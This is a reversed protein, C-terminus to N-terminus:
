TKLGFSGIRTKSKLKTYQLNSRLNGKLLITSLGRYSSDINLLNGKYRLKFVSRSATYRRTLRGRAELRFGTIHKYKLKKYIFRKLLSKNTTTSFSTSLDKIKNSFVMKIKYDLEDNLLIKKKQIQVKDRLRNIHRLLKRRNKTIKLKIVEALIESNLYFKRLNIINFVVNKNYLKELHKKLFQLYTYNFKTKNIYLLKKYYIYRQLKRIFKILIKKKFQNVYENVTYNKIIENSKTKLNNLAKIIIYKESNVKKLKDIVKQNILDLKKFKKNHESIKNLYRRGRLKKRLKKKLKLLYFKKIKSLYNYKQRNYTYLTIIVKNNTHKYEGNTVFIKNTSLRRFRLSLRKRRMRREINKNFINFYNKIINSASVRTTPINDM